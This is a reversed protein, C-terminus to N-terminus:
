DTENLLNAIINLALMTKGSKEPGGIVLFDGYRIPTLNDLKDYGTRIRQELDDGSQYRTLADMILTKTDLKAPPTMEARIREIGASLTNVLDTTTIDKTELQQQGESLVKALARRKAASKVIQMLERLAGAVPMITYLETLEHFQVQSNRERLKEFIVRVDCVARRSVQDLVIEVVNRSLGDAIFSPNFNVESISNLVLEPHNLTISAIGRESEIPPLM